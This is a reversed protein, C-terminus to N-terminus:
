TLTIATTSSSVLVTKSTYGSATVLHTGYPVNTITVSCTTAPSVKTCNGTHSGVSVVTTSSPGPDLTVTVSSVPIM